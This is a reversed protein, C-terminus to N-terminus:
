DPKTKTNDTRYQLDDARIKEHNRTKKASLGDGRDSVRESESNGFVAHAARWVNYMGVGIGIVFGLALFLTKLDPWLWGLGYGLAVGVVVGGLLDAGVRMAQAMASVDQRPKRGQEKAQEMALMKADLASLDVFKTEAQRGNEEAPM